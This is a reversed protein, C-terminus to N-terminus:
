YCGVDIIRSADDVRVTLRDPRRDKTMAQTPSVTRWLGAGSERFARRGNEENAPLGIVWGLTDTQCAGSSVHPTPETSACGSALTLLFLTTLAVAKM